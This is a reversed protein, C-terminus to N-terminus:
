ERLCQLPPAEEQVDVVGVDVAFLLDHADAHGLDVAREGFLDGLDDVRNAVEVELLRRRDRLRDVPRARQHVEAAVLDRGLHEAVRQVHQQLVLAVDALRALLEADVLRGDDALRSAVAWRGFPFPAHRRGPIMTRGPSPAFSSYAILWTAPDVAVSGASGCMSSTNCPKTWSSRVAPRGTEIVSFRSAIRASSCM